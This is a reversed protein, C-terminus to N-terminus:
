EIEILGLDIFAISLLSLLRYLAKQSYHNEQWKFININCQSFDDLDYDPIGMQVFAKFMEQTATIITNADIKNQIIKNNNLYKKLNEGTDMSCSFYDILFNSATFSEISPYSLLLLGQREYDETEERSNDLKSLLKAILNANTNSKNDRDFIYYIAANEFKFNYDNILMVFVENLYQQDNEGIFKIDSDKANIIFVQSNKHSKSTYKYFRGNRRIRTFDYDFIKTFIKHLIYPETSEGEVIFLVRGIRKDKNIRM